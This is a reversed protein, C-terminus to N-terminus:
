VANKDDRGDWLDGGNMETEWQRLADEDWTKDSGDDAQKLFVEDRLKLPLYENYVPHAYDPNYHYGDGYGLDKMLSTPANRVAMPVPDTPDKKAAAEARNYGRYSRTSKPAESLYSVCHALNIRCEPMGVLQCAQMTAVALPLAHNDALGVDESACVVLRRAIFVPDEGGTLMRALWYLAASGQSGRISKHLASIMDYHSEGTRDYSVSVSVRLHNLLQREKMDKSLLALELLSLATRADGNSLSAITDMVKETLQPYAIISASSTQSSPNPPTPLPAEAEVSPESVEEAEECIRAVANHLVQKMDDTSLPNLTFVRCRSLLASNLKFSPNETTAGILQVEGKEISPLFIDQQSRTFRHVEDLFIITRRGTLAMTGKAEEFTQRIDNIGVVTASLEKLISNTEGAILRALTTKGCGPPGWLIISGVSGNSVAKQLLSDPGTLHSQGVFDALKKPRLREALPVADLKAQNRKRKLSISAPTGEDVAGRKLPIQRTQSPSSMGEVKRGPKAFIPALAEKKSARQSSSAAGGASSKPEPRASSNDNCANDLHRNIDSEPVGRECVPCIVRVVKQNAELSKEVTQMAEELDDLSKHMGQQDAELSSLMSQFEGASTHLSSLTRLRTLIHPIQPLLPSLRSLLPLLQEQINPSPGSASPQSPNRRHGHQQSASARDLDSLLLKLRRSVSDIHRPQTLITLQANLRAVSSLLPPPMTSAEDITINSSGLLKELDGLRKDMEAVSGSQTESKSANAQTTSDGTSSLKSEEADNDRDGDSGLVVQVLKGRGEKGKRIKELRGRVDVLGRILIGPDVQDEVREKHLQPNTPDSLEEELAALEAQLARLRYSLPVPKSSSNTEDVPSTSSPPYAYETRMQARRKEAKRFRKSAEDHSMLHSSDLEERPANPDAHRKNGRNQAGEDDHDSSDNGEGSDVVDETEYVDPATDIDPLNAYKNLSM